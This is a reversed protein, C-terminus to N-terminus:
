DYDCMHFDTFCWNSSEGDGFIKLIKTETNLPNNIEVIKLCPNEGSNYNCWISFFGERWPFMAQINGNFNDKIKYTSQVNGKDPVRWLFFEIDQDQFSQGYIGILDTNNLAQM